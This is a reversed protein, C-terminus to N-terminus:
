IKKVIKLERAINRIRKQDLLLCIMRYVCAIPYLWKFKAFPLYHQCIEWSPFVRGWLYLFKSKTTNEGLKHISNQVRQEMTGYAGSSLYYLIMEM